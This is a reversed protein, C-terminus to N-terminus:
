LYPKSTPTKAVLLRSGGHLGVLTHVTVSREERCTGDDAPAGRSTREVEIGGVGEHAPHLAHEHIGEV